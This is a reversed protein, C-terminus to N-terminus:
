IVKQNVKDVDNVLKNIEAITEECANIEKSLIHLLDFVGQDWEAIMMARDLKGFGFYHKRLQTKIHKLKELQESTTKFPINDM